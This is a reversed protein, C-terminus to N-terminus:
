SIQHPLIIITDGHLHVFGCPGVNCWSDLRIWCEIWVPSLIVRRFSGRFFFWFHLIGEMCEWLSTVLIHQSRDASFSAHRLQCYAILACCQFGTCPCSSTSSSRSKGSFVDTQRRSISCSGKQFRFKQQTVRWLFIAVFLGLLVTNERWKNRQNPM